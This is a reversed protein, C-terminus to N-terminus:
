EKLRLMVMKFFNLKDRIEEPSGKWRNGKYVAKPNPKLQKNKVPPIVWPPTVKYINAEWLLPVKFFQWKKGADEAWFLNRDTNVAQDLYSAPLHGQTLILMASLILFNNNAQRAEGPKRLKTYQLPPFVMFFKVALAIQCALQGWTALNQKLWETSNMNATDLVTVPSLSGPSLGLQKWENKAQIRWRNKTIQGEVQVLLQAKLDCPYQTLRGMNLHELTSLSGLSPPAPLVWVLWEKLMDQHGTLGYFNLSNGQQNGQFM